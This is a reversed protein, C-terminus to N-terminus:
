GCRWQEGDEEVVGRSNREECEEVGKKGMDDERSGRRKKM